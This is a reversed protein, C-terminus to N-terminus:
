LVENSGTAIRAPEGVAPLKLVVHRDVLLLQQYHDRLGLSPEDDDIGELSEKGLPVLKPLMVLIRLMKVSRPLTAFFVPVTM